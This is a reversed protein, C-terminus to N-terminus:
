QQQLLLCYFFKVRTLSHTNSGHNSCPNGWGCHPTRVELSISRMACLTHTHTHTHFYRTEIGTGTAQLAVARGISSYGRMMTYYRERAREIYLLEYPTLHSDFGRGRAGLALIMGSSWQGLYIRAGLISSPVWHTHPMQWLWSSWARMNNIVSM